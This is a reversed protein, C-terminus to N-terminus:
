WANDHIYNIVSRAARGSGGGRVFEDDCKWAWRAALSVLPLPFPAEMM